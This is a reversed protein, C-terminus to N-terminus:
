KKHNRKKQFANDNPNKRGYGVEFNKFHKNSKKTDEFGYGGQLGLQAEYFEKERHKEAKSMKLRNPGYLIQEESLILDDNKRGGKPLPIHYVQGRRNLKWNKRRYLVLDGNANYSCTV